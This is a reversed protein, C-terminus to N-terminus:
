APPLWELLVSIGNDETPEFGLHAFIALAQQQYHEVYVRVPVDLAAAEELLPRLVASGLGRGRHAPLLAVDLIRLEEPRRDLYLRGAPVGSDEIVLFDAEGFEQRYHQQQARFQLELFAQKQAEEWPVLALEPARSAAYIAFLLAEDAPTAPRLHVTETM